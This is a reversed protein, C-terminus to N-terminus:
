LTVRPEFYRHETGTERVLLSQAGDVQVRVLYTGAPLTTFAFSLTTTDGTREDAELTYAPDDAAGDFPSLLLLARQHQGVAPAVTVDINGVPDGSSDTGTSATVNYAGGGGTTIAPRVVVPVVNSETHRHERPPDGMLLGHVVQVAQVGARLTGDEPTAALDLRIHRNTVRDAPPRYTAGGVRVRTTDGRLNRGEIALVTASTIAPAGDDAGIREVEPQHLPRVYALRTQVPLVPHEREDAEILVLHAQYAMSLRYATQFFVSWLKSLEDLDLSLPTLKVREIQEALDSGGLYGGYTTSTIANVILQPTLLPRAHLLRVVSGMLRQPLLTKEDGYFTLLYHLDLAACPRQVVSGDTRRTPLDANRYAANPLVQYLFVNVGPKTAKPVEDPRVNSVDSGTVEAQVVPRISECLAATVTAVALENSM